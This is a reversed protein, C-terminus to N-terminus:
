GFLSSAHNSMIVPPVTRTLAAMNRLLITCLEANRAAVNTMPQVDSSIPLHISADKSVAIQNAGSALTCVHMGRQGSDSCRGADERDRRQVSLSPRSQCAAADHCLLM